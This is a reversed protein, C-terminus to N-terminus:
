RCLYSVLLDITDLLVVILGTGSPARLTWFCNIDWHINKYSPNAITGHVKNEINRGCELFDLNYQDIYSNRMPM